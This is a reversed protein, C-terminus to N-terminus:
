HSSNLRTSKRDVTSRMQGLYELPTVIARERKGGNGKREGIEEGGKGIEGNGVRMGEVGCGM